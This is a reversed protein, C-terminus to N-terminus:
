HRPSGTPTGGLAPAYSKDISVPASGAGHDGPGVHGPGDEQEDLASDLMSLYKPHYQEM